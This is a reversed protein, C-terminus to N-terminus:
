CPEAYEEREGYFWGPWNARGAQWGGDELPYLWIRVVHRSPSQRPDEGNLEGTDVDVPLFNSADLCADVLLQPIPGDLEREAVEAWVIDITGEYRRNQELDAAINGTFMDLWTPEILGELSEGTVDSNVKAAVAAQVYIEVFALASADLPDMTPTPSVGVQPSSAPPLRDEEDGGCGAVLWFALVTAVAATGRNLPVKAHM